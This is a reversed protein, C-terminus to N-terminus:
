KFYRSDAIKKIKTLINEMYDVDENNDICYPSIKMNNLVEIYSKITARNVQKRVTPMNTWNIAELFNCINKKKTETLQNSEMIKQKAKDLKYYDGLFTYGELINIFFENFSEIDWYNKLDQAIGYKVKNSKMLSNKNQIEFRIIGKYVEDQNTQEYKDYININFKGARNNLHVSSDYIIKSKAYRYSLDHKHLLKMFVKHENEDFYVDTYYDIRNLLIDTDYDEVVESLLMRINEIYNNYDSLTIDQNEKNCIKHANTCILLYNSMMYYNYSVNDTNYYACAKSYKFYDWKIQYPKVIIGLRVTDIM